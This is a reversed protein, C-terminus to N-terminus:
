SRTATPTISQLNADTQDYACQWIIAYAAFPLASVLKKYSGVQVGDFEGGKSEVARGNDASFSSAVNVVLSFLLLFPGTVVVAGSLNVVAEKTMINPHAAIAVLFDGICHCIGFTLITRFCGWKGDALYVGFIPTIYDISTRTSKLASASVLRWGIKQMFNKLGQNIGYYSLRESLEMM